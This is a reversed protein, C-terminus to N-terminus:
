PTFGCVGPENNKDETDYKNKQIESCFNKLFVNVYDSTVGVLYMEDSNLCKGKKNLNDQLESLKNIVEDLKKYNETKM